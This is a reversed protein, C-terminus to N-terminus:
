CAGVLQERQKNLEVLDFRHCYCYRLQIFRYRDIYSFRVEEVNKSFQVISSLDSIDSLWVRKVNMLNTVFNHYHIKYTSDYRDLRVEQIGSMLPSLYIPVRIDSLFLGEIASVTMLENWAEELSISSGAFHLRNYFGQIYLMRVANCANRVVDVRSCNGELKLLDFKINSGILWRQNKQILDVTTSFTQINPYMQFFIQLIPMQVLNAFEEFHVYELKPYKRLLWNNSSGIITGGEISCIKLRKINPCFRLFSIYFDGKIGHYTELDEIQSLIGKLGNIRNEYFTEVFINMRKIWKAHIYQYKDLHQTLITIKGNGLKVAPCFREIYYDVLQMLEKNTQRLALLNRLPLWDFLDLFCDNNLKFIHTLPEDDNSPLKQKEDSMIQNFQM